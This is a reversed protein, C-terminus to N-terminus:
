TEQLTIQLSFQMQEKHKLVPLKRNERATSIRDYYGNTPELACNYDGQFGGATIWVGLYPLKAADYDLTYAVKQSPYSIACHGTKVPAEGYYKVMNCINPNPMKKFDYCDNELDYVMGEDGLISGALVNKCRQMDDPLVIEMDQEYRVLGHWTWMCPLEREGENIICYEITLTHKELRLKKEYSYQFLPSRWFLVVMDTTQTKIEFDADWIEGHDPYALLCNKWQINEENINPFADDMGYAYPAFSRVSQEKLLRQECEQVISGQAVLEFEKEKLYFSTIKGGLSPFIEVNVFENELRIREM